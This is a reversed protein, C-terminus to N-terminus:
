CRVWVRRHRSEYRGPVWVRQCREPEVVGWHRHGCPDCLWGYRAPEHEERWYGEVWVQECVTEWRGRRPTREDCRDRARDGNGRVVPACHAGFQLGGQVRRQLSAEIRFQAPAVAALGLLFMVLKSAHVMGFEALDSPHGNSLSAQRPGLHLRPWRITWVAPCGGIGFVSGWDGIPSRRWPSAASAVLWRQGLLGRGGPNAAGFVRSWCSGM